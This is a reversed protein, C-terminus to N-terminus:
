QLKVNASRPQTSLITARNSTSGKGWDSTRLARSTTKMLSRERYKAGNMKGEIRVQRGTGAASFCGWLM